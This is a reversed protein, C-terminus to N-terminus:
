QIIAARRAVQLGGKTERRELAPAVAWRSVLGVGLNAAVMEVLADTLPVIVVRPRRAREAAILERMREIDSRPADHAFVTEQGLEVATVYRKTAFPHGPAAIVTWEDDFLSVSVLDRDRLGEARLLLMITQLYMGLDAWQASGMDRDIYCFRAAPAGFCEGAAVREATRKKLEALSAGM